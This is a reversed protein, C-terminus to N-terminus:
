NQLRSSILHYNCFFFFFFNIYIAMRCLLINLTFEYDFVM